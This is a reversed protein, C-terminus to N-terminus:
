VRSFNKTFWNKCITVPFGNNVSPEYVMVRRVNYVSTKNFIMHFEFFTFCKCLIIWICIFQNITSYQLIFQIKINRIKISFNYKRIM